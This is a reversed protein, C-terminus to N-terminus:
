STNELHITSCRFATLQQPTMNQNYSVNVNFNNVNAGAPANAILNNIATNANQATTTAQDTIRGVTQQQVPTVNGSANPRVAMGLFGQQVPQPPNVTIQSPAQITTSMFQNYPFDSPKTAGNIYTTGQIETTGPAIGTTQPAQIQPQAYYGQDNFSNIRQMDARSIIYRGGQQANWIIVQSADPLTLSAKQKFLPQGNAGVANIPELGELEKCDIVRNGSFAYPTYFPYKSALPDVSMFRSVEKDRRAIKIKELEDELIIFEIKKTVTNMVVSGIQRLTDNQVHEIYRGKSLTLYEVEDDLGLEKFPKQAHTGLALFCIIVIKVIRTKM